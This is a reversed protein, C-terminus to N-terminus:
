ETKVGQALSNRNRPRKPKHSAGSIPSVAANLSNPLARPQPRVSTYTTQHVPPLVPALVLSYEQGYPLQPQANAHMPGIASNQSEQTESPFANTLAVPGWNSMDDNSFPQKEDEAGAFFSDSPDVERLPAEQESVVPQTLDESGAFFSKSPDAVQLPPEPQQEDGSIILDFEDAIRVVKSGFPKSTVDTRATCNDAPAKENQGSIDESDIHFNNDAFLLEEEVSDKVKADRSPPLAKRGLLALIEDDSFWFKKPIPLGGPYNEEILQELLLYQPDTRPDFLEGKIM